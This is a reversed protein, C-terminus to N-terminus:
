SKGIFVPYSKLRHITPFNSFDKFIWPHKLYFLNPLQKVGMSWDRESPVSNTTEVAKEVCIQHHEVWRSPATMSARFMHRTFHFGKKVLCCYVHWTGYTFLPVHRFCNYYTISSSYVHPDLINANSSRSLRRITWVGHMHMRDTRLHAVHQVTGYKWTQGDRQEALAKVDRGQLVRCEKRVYDSDGHVDALAVFWMADCRGFQDDVSHFRNCSALLISGYPAQCSTCFLSSMYYPIILVKFM